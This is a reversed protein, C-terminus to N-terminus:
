NKGALVNIEDIGSAEAAKTFASLRNVLLSAENVKRNLDYMQKQRQEIISDYQEIIHKRKEEGDKVEYLLNTLKDTFDKGKQQEVYESIVRPFRISRQITSNVKTTM